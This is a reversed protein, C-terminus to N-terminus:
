RVPLEAVLRTGGGRPSHVDLRGGLSEVRDALGRLGSGASDAGGVGDDVIELRLRGGDTAVTLRGRTARAHKGLNAVAESCLFYAAAAVEPSLEGVAACLDVPVPAHRVLEDLAATLGLQELGPPHLGRSLERVDELASRAQRAAQEVSAITDGDPAPPRRARDLRAAVEQLRRGATEELRQQLRRRERDGAELLRRRSAEVEAIQAQVDAHLRANVAALRAAASISDLLQPDSLVAPDHVLVGLVQGESEIRTIARGASEAPLALPRGSSDVYGSAGPVRYGLELTPDGLAAALRDRVSGAPQRTVEVVLDAVEVSRGRLLGALLGVAVGCLTAQYALLVAEDAEGASLQLRIVAGAALMAAVATVAQVAVARERRAPGRSGRYGHLSVTLLLVAFGVTASPNRAIPVALAVGYALATMAQAPASVLRGTPFSLLVHVLLGRHLYMTQAGFWALLAPGATAFNGLFWAFGTVTLLAGTRSAPRKASGILGCAILTWGVTLDPIWRRPSEVGFATLQAAIGIGVAAAVAGLLVARRTM